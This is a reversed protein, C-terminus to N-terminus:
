PEDPGGRRAVSYATAAAELEDRAAVGVLRGEPTTVIAWRLGREALQRAVGAATRHPRVTSPGPEMVEAAALTPDCDLQSARLRGLLVDGPSLVLAFPYPSAAVRERVTGVPEELPAFVVDRRAYDGVKPEDAREGEIPRQRVLWEVKGAM